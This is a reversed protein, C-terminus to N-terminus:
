SAIIHNIVDFIKKFESVDFGTFGEEGNLIYKAFDAKSLAVNTHEDDFVDDDIIANTKGVKNPTRCVLPEELHRSSKANFEHGLFLRRGFSDKQKLEDDSYYFELSINPNDIRHSPLPIVFSYVNNGWFKYDFENKNDSVKNVISDNDRDFICIIKRDERTKSRARCISLLEKDGMNIDDEYENFDLKLDDFCGQSQLINLANKLHKWDV